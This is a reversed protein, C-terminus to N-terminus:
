WRQDDTQLLPGPRASNHNLRVGKNKTTENKLVIGFEPSTGWVWGTSSLM